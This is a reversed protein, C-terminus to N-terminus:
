IEWPLKETPHVPLVGSPAPLLVAATPTEFFGDLAFTRGALGPYNGLSDKIYCINSSPGIFGTLGILASQVEMGLFIHYAGAVSAFPLTVSLFGSGSGNDTIAFSFRAFVTTGFKMYGGAISGVAGLAGAYAGITPV